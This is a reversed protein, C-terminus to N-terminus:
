AEEFEDCDCLRCPGDDGRHEDDDHGCTCTREESM